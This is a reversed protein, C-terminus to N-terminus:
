SIGMIKDYIKDIKNKMDSYDAKIENIALDHTEKLVYKDFKVEFKMQLKELENKLQKPTVFINYACLFGIVVVIMPAYEIYKDM